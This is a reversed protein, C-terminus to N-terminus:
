ARSKTTTFPSFAAPPKPMVSGIRMSSNSAPASTTVIPLWTKSWGRPAHEHGIEVAGEAGHFPLEISAPQFSAGVGDEDVEMGLRGGLLFGHTIEDVSADARQDARVGM